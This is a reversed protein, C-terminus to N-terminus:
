TTKTVHRNDIFVHLKRQIYWEMVFLNPVWCLWAIVAYSYQFNEFGFLVTFLPPLNAIDSGCLNFCLKKADM